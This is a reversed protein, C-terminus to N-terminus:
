QPIRNTTVPATEFDTEEVWGARVKEGRLYREYFGAGDTVPYKDFISGDGLMRPDEQALLKSEMTKQLERKMEAHESDEALNRVCDPDRQLDYLEEASRFGFNWNWFPNDRDRRGLELIFSKTPSGDTDLYGTEPNGAPWRTPEYNRLYLYNQTVIGRIPYGVDGPRGVDTREKGILVHDREVIIQGDRESELLPRMSQGTIPLMGSQEADINALDLLTPALDTFDVFDDIVRGSKVIGAPWSLALPVHNSDHYAYGKVRPFPMGHDSTVVILTNDFLNRKKLEWIMAGLHRDVYEVEFAYDLMDYRVTDEDPWYSPVRDIDSLQKGGKSVGSRFEYGRHPELFGCWFCWPQDGTAADLFDAFNAAYDNPSIQQTPPATIRSNFAKGTLSRHVGNADKAIGPGWGKGTYGTLWGHETLVEPWTKLRAPFFALHNGAEENQWLHRGTLLIARSPACKAMPTYANRFLLGNKALADFNPTDIWRTGYVGAHLGWDDAVVILVNPRAKVIGANDERSPSNASSSMSGFAIGVVIAISTLVCLKYYHM